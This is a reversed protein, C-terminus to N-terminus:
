RAHGAALRLRLRQERLALAVLARLIHALMNREVPHRHTPARRELDGLDDPAHPARCRAAPHSVPLTPPTSSSIM